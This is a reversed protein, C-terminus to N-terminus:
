AIESDSVHGSRRRRNPSMVMPQLQSESNMRMSRGCALQPPRQTRAKNQQGSTKSAKADGSKKTCPKRINDSSSPSNSLAVPTSFPDEPTPTSDDECVSAESGSESNKDKLNITIREKEATRYAFMQFPVDAVRTTESHAWGPVNRSLVTELECYDIAPAIPEPQSHDPNLALFRSIFRLTKCISSFSPRQSPEAQWCKKTLSTLYKPSPFPFLPREGARINRSMKGGQLHGEEFPVKGTLLEFSIMAFSYVDAKETYRANTTSGQDQEALVEPAYWIFSDPSAQTTPSRPGFKKVTLLGFGSVKVHVYGELSSGRMKVLINSPNLDGHYIKQSHLYEMGRAIQLMIDVAVPLSFPVRRRPSCVEKIHSGLDKNMLEMVLLCEKKEEDTFACLFNMINPHMLASLQSIEPILSEVEGFFHRVVLSEGMWQVEKYQSGNGLRRRVQYDKSGVLISSPFMKGKSPELGEYNNLLIDLIRSEQKMGAGALKRKEDIADLLMRRDSNWAAEIKRLTDNTVLYQKGFKWQFLKRDLWEKEYKKSILIRKKQIECQDCGAVESAVELAEMAICFCMFFNHIHFEVCDNNQALCIAKVLWEKPELCQRVYAEGEKVTRHLERLPQDLVKWKTLREEFKLNQAMEDAIVDFGLNYIEVLVTCQNRNIKIEEKFVMLAKLSGLVEGIQRLREM